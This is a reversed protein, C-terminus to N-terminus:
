QQKRKKIILAIIGALLLVAGSISAMIVYTLFHSRDGTDPRDPEDPTTEETTTEEPTTETEESSKEETSREESSNEESSREESSSEEEFDNAFLFEVIEDARVTQVAPKGDQEAPEQQVLYYGNGTEEETVTIETGVPLGGIVAERFRDESSDFSLIVERDCVVEDKYVGKVRFTFVADAKENFTLLKKIIRISGFRSEREPKLHVTVDYNWEGSDTTRPNEDIDSATYPLVILVPAFTYLYDGSLVKTVPNEPDSFDAYSEPDAPDTEAGRAIVLYLAPALDRGRDDKELKEGPKLAAGSILPEDRTVATVFAKAAEKKWSSADMDTSITVPRDGNKYLDRLSFILSGNGSSVDLGAIQYLDYVLKEDKLGERLEEGAPVIGLKVPRGPELAHSVQGSALFLALCGALFFTLKKGFRKDTKKM